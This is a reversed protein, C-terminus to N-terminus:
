LSRCIFFIMILSLLVWTVTPMKEPLPEKSSLHFAMWCITAAMMVGWAIGFLM